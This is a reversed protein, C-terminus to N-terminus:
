DRHSCLIRLKAGVKKNFAKVAGSEASIYLRGGTLTGDVDFIIFKIM